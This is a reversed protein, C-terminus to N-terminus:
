SNLNFSFQDYHFWINNRLAIASQYNVLLQPTVAFRDYSLVFNLLSPSPGFFSEAPVLLFAARLAANRSTPFLIVKIM